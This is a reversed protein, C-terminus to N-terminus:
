RDRTCRATSLPSHIVQLHLLFNLNLHPSDTRAETRAPSLYKGELSDIVNQDLLYEVCNSNGNYCAWHLITCDQDDKSTVAGPDAKVLAALAKM